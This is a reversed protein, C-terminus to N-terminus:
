NIPPEKPLPAKIGKGSPVELHVPDGNSAGYIHVTHTAWIGLIRLEELDAYYVTDIGTAKAIDGIANSKWAVHVWPQMQFELISGQSGNGGSVKTANSNIMLPERTHSYILGISQIGRVPGKGACGSFVFAGILALIITNRM